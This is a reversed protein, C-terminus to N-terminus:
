ESSGFTRLLRAIQAPNGSYSDDNAGTNAHDIKTKFDIADRDIVRDNNPELRGPGFTIEISEQDIPVHFALREIQCSVREADMAIWREIEIAVHKQEHWPPRGGMAENPCSRAVIRQQHGLLAVLQAHHTRLRRFGVMGVQKVLEGDGSGQCRFTRAQCDGSAFWQKM